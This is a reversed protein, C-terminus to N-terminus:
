ASSPMRSQRKDRPSPSTYLLCDKLLEIFYVTDQLTTNIKLAALDSEGKTYFSINTSDNESKNLGKIAGQHIILDFEKNVLHEFEIDLSFDGKILTFDIQVSDAILEIKSSDISTIPASTKLHLNESDKLYDSSLPLININRKLTDKKILISDCRQGVKTWVYTSDSSM